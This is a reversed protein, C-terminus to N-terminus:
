DAGGGGARRWAAEIRDHAANLQRTLETADSQRKPDNHFRDPHCRKLYSKWRENAKALTAGFPLDLVRFADALEPSHPLPSTTAAPEEVYIPEGQPDEQWRTPPETIGYRQLLDHLHARANQALRELLDSVTAGM